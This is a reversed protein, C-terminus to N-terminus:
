KSKRNVSSKKAKLIARRLQKKKIEPNAKFLKRSKRIMCKVYAGHTHKGRANTYTNDMVCCARNLYLEHIPDLSTGEVITECQEPLPPAQGEIFDFSFAREITNLGDTASIVFSYAGPKL